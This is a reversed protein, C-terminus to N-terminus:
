VTSNIVSILQDLKNKPLSEYVPLYITESMYDNCMEPENLSNDSPKIPILQTSTFTADFGAERLAKVLTERKETRIPFLWYSHTDNDVGHVNTNQLRESVYDGVKIRKSFHDEGVNTLRYLLYKLQSYSPYMRISDLLEDSPFNRVTSIIAKDYDIKLIKCISIFIGYFFPESLIKLLFYKFVKSRFKKNNVRDYESFRKKITSYLEYNSTFGVACGLATISKISGFSFMSLDTKSQMTYENIGGYAQACDEIILIDPRDVLAKYVPNMDMRSGFLHAIVVMVTKDTIANAVSAEDVQLTEMNIDVPVVNLDHAKVIKLMDPITIGSMIIESGSKYGKQSLLLDFISRVSLGVIVNENPWLREIDETVDEGKNLSYRLARFINKYTFDLKKRPYVKIM